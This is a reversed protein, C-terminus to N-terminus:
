GHRRSTHGRRDDPGDASVVPGLSRARTDWVVVLEDRADREPKSLSGAWEEQSLRTAKKTMGELVSQTGSAFVARVGQALHDGFPRLVGETDLANVTWSTTHRRKCQHVEDSGDPIPGFLRFEAGEGALDPPEPRIAEFQGRLVPLVGKWVTWWAEYRNGWKDAVGGGVAARKRTSVGGTYVERWAWSQEPSV